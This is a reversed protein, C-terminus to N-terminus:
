PINPRTKIKTRLQFIVKTGVTREPVSRPNRAAAPPGRLAAAQQVCVVRVRSTRAVMQGAIGDEHSVLLWNYTACRYVVANSVAKSVSM